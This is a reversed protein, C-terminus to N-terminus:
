ARVLELTLSSHDNHRFGMIEYGIPALAEQLTKAEDVIKKREFGLPGESTRVYYGKQSREEEIEKASQREM